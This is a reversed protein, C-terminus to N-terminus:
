GLQTNDSIKKLDTNVNVSLRVTKFYKDWEDCLKDYSKPSDKALYEGVRLADSGNEQCASFAARCLREIERDADSCIKKLKKEDLSTIIGKEIEDIMLHAKIDVNFVINGDVIEINKKVKPASIKLSIGGLEEDKFEVTCIKIKDSIFNFGLTEDDNTVYVLKEKNFLGLGKTEINDGDQKKEVVPLYVDSTKDSSMNLLDSVTVYASLGADQGNKLLYVMNECPIGSDNEKSEIIEKAGKDSICVAVDIRSDSSRLFYDLKEKFDSEAIDRSFVILKNHGFFLKKSVSKSLGAIADVITEGDGETNYTRNGQPTEDGAAAGLKLTQIIINVKDDKTEVGMGEVVLLDKLHVSNMCGSLMGAILIICLVIKFSKSLSMVM